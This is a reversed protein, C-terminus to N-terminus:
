AEIEKAMRKAIKWLATGHRCHPCVIYAWWKKGTEDEYGNDHPYARVISILLERSCGICNFRLGEFQDLIKPIDGGMDRDLLLEDESAMYPKVEKGDIKAYIGTKIGHFEGECWCRCRHTEANECEPQHFRTL